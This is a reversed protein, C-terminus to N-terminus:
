KIQLCVPSNVKYTTGTARPIGDEDIKMVVISDSHENAILMYADNPTIAFNRPWKGETSIETIFTLKGDGGVKFVTISDRGRNSTYLFPKTEALHIDAGHNEGDYNPSLTNIEQILNISEFSEDYEYVSVKSNFENVVYLKRLESKIAVHRPGTKAVTEVKKKLKLTKTEDDSDYLYLMDLGLDTVVYLNTGPINRVTHPHSAQKDSYKKSESLPGILGDSTVPHVTATGEGYNVTFLHDEHNNLTLYCPANGLTPQRNIETIKLSSAIDFSVIEGDEVESVAYLKTQAENVTLYSPNKIGSVSSLKKISGDSSNFELLQITEVEEEGYTGVYVRYVNQNMIVEPGENM